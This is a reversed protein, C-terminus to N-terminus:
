STCARQPPCSPRRPGTAPWSSSCQQLPAGGRASRRGGPLCPASCLEGEHTSTHLCPEELNIQCTVILALNFREKLISSSLWYGYGEEQHDRYPVVKTSHPRCANATPAHKCAHVTAPASAQMHQWIPPGSPTIAESIARMVTAWRSPMHICARGLDTVAQSPDEFGEFQSSKTVVM